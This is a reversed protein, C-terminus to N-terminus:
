TTTPRVFKAPEWPHDPFVSQAMQQISRYRLYLTFGDHDKMDQTSVSYLAELLQQESESPTNNKKRYIQPLMYEILFRRQNQLSDWWGKPSINFKWPQWNHEPFVEMVANAASSSYYKQVLTAGSRESVLDFSIQYWPEPSTLSWGLEAALTEFFRRHNSKDAWCKKSALKFKWPLFEHQPYVAALTRELSDGYINMLRTGGLKQLDAKEVRYWFALRESGIKGISKGGSTEDIAWELFSKQNDIDEWFGHAVYPFLWPQWSHEPHLIRLLSELSM